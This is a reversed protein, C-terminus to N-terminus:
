RVIDGAEIKTSQEKIDAACIDQRVQIVEIRAIYEPGHYVTLVDGIKVGSKEGVNIIAFNNDENISLVKADIGPKELSPNLPDEPKASSVIIPPLEVGEIASNRSEKFSEDLSAKIDWIEDIKGQILGDNKRLSKKMKINQSRLKVITKELATKIAIMQKMQKRLAVTEKGLKDSREYVYRRDSKSRALELSLNDIIEKKYKNDIEKEEKEKVVNELELEFNANAQKLDVIEISNKDLEESLRDIEVELSAKEKLIDAWYEEEQQYDALLPKIEVKEKDLDEKVEEIVEEEYKPVDVFVEKIVEKYIIEPEPKEKLKKVLEDRQKRAEDLRKKWKQNEEEAKVINEESKESQKKLDKITMTFEYREKEFAEVEEKFGKIKEQYKKEENKLTKVQLMYTDVEGELNQVERLLSSKIVELKQKDMLSIGAFFISLILLVILIYISQKAVKSM